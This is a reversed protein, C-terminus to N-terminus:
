VTSTLSSPGAAPNAIGSSLASPGLTPAIINSQVGTPGLGPAPTADINSPGLVPPIISAELTPGFEPTPDFITVCGTGKHAAPSRRVTLTVDAGGMEYYDAHTDCFQRKISSPFRGAQLGFYKPNKSFNVYNVKNYKKNKYARM